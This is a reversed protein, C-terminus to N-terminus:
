NRKKYKRKPKKKKDSKNLKIESNESVGSKKLPIITEGEHIGYNKMEKEAKKTSTVIKVMAEKKACELCYYKDKVKKYKNYM